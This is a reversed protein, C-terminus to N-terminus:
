RSAWRCRTCSVVWPGSMSRQVMHCKCACKQPVIILPNLPSCRCRVSEGHTGTTSCCWRLRVALCEMPHVRRLRFRLLLLLFSPTRSPRHRDIRDIRTPIKEIPVPPTRDKGEHRKKRRKRGKTRGKENTQRAHPLTDYPPDIWLCWIIRNSIRM